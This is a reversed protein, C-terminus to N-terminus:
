LCSDGAGLKQQKQSLTESHMYVLSAKFDKAEGASPKCVHVVM